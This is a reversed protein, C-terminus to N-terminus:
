TPEVWSAYMRVSANAGVAGCINVTCVVNDHKCICPILDGSCRLM